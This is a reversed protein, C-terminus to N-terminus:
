SRLLNERLARFIANFVKPDSTEPLNLNITYGVKLEVETANPISSAPQDLAITVNPQIAETKTTVAPDHQTEGEFDALENLALFTGM